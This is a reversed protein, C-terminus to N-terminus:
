NFGINKIYKNSFDKRNALEIYKTKEVIKELLIDSDRDLLFNIGGNLSSNGVLKVKSQFEPPFLGIKISNDINLKSGFGGAILVEDIEDYSCEFIDILTDIGTRIAAKALQVERVDKKTFKIIRDNSSVININDEIMRGTSDIWGKSLGVSVIDVVGSGCIGVPKLNNITEYQIKNDSDLYVKAIAGEVSGIGDSINAGEFAPGAATSVCYIKDKNGIAIEGNTGIDILM